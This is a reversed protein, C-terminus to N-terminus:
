GVFVSRKYTTRTKRVDQRLLQLLFFLRNILVVLCETDIRHHAPSICIKIVLSFIM